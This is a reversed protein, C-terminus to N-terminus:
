KRASPVVLLTSKAATMGQRETLSLSAMHRTYALADNLTAVIAALMTLSKGLGMEDALIGGLADNPSQAKAGTIIHRYM